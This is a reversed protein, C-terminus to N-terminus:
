GVRVQCRVTLNTRTNRVCRSRSPGNRKRVPPEVLVAGEVPSCRIRRRESIVRARESAVITPQPEDDDDDEDAEDDEDDPECDASAAGRKAITV